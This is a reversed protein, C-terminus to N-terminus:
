RSNVRIKIRKEGARIIDTTSERVRYNKLTRIEDVNVFESALCSNELESSIIDIGIDARGFLTRYWAVYKHALEDLTVTCGESVLVMSMIFRHVNDQRQQFASTERDLTMCPVNVLNNKHEAYLRHRYHALISLFAQKYAPDHAIKLSIDNDVLKEYPNNPDPKNSFTVKARYYRIRRWTGNDKCLIKFDYNSLAIPNCINRYSTQSGYNKRGTQKGPNCISKIRKINLQEERNFEDFYVYRKGAIHMQAENASNSNETPDTLLGSKGLEAYHDGITEAAFKSTFSKGNSGAGVILLLVGAAEEADLGTSTHFLVYDLMDQEIYIDRLIRLIKKIHPEEPDFPMWTTNTYKSVRFEHFGEHLRLQPYLELVGNGVGMLHPAKDLSKMFGPSRFRIKAQSCVGRIFGDNTLKAQYSKLTKYIGGFYKASNKDEAGELRQKVLSIVTEYIDPLSDAIYRMMGEPQARRVWKYRQGPQELDEVEMMYEYWHYLPEARTVESDDTDTIFVDQLIAKVIRAVIAHDIRGEFKFANRSLITSYTNKQMEEYREPATTRAWYHISKLTVGGAKDQSSLGSNWASEFGAVNWKEPCKQSFWVAFPKYQPGCSAIAFVVKLWLGYSQAYEAPLIELLNYVERASPNVRTLYMISQSLENSTTTPTQPKQQRLLEAVKTTASYDKKQLWVPVGAISDLRFSLSLEHALYSRSMIDEVRLTEREVDDGHTEVQTASVLVYPSKGPTCSGLFYVPNRVCGFDVMESPPQANVVDEFIDDMYEKFKEVLHLKLPKEIWVDPILAHLGDRYPPQEGSAKENLAIRPKRIWFIHFKSRRGFDVCGVLVKCLARTMSAIHQQTIQPTIVNQDRDIDIMIGSQPVDDRFQRETYHLSVGSARCAEYKEFFVSVAKNTIAYNKREIVNSITTTPSGKETVMSGVYKELDRLASSTKHQIITDLTLSEDFEEFFDLYATPESM